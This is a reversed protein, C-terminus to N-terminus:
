NAILIWLCVGLLATYVSSITLLFPQFFEGIKAIAPGFLDGQAYTIHGSYYTAGWLVVLLLLLAWGYEFFKEALFEKM